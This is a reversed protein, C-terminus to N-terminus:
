AQRRANSTSTAAVDASAPSDAAEDGHHESETDFEESELEPDPRKWERGPQYVSLELGPHRRGQVLILAIGIIVAIIAAWVNTRVGFYIESPDVRISEFFARGLGYWVLYVGFARGWRLVIRREILLIVIVGLTNWIMEYLFTPHFLTGEPLGVPFAKNDMPVELGWPLTTPLGFLEINFWNGLRGMAQAILM